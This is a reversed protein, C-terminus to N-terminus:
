YRQVRLLPFTISVKLQPKINLGSRVIEKLNHGDHFEANIFKVSGM